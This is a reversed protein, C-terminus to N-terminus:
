AFASASSLRTGPTVAAPYPRTIGIPNPPERVLWLLLPVAVVPVLVALALYAARWGMVPLLATAIPVFLGQGAPIASSMIGTARGLHVLFWGALLATAPVTSAGAFGVGPVVGAFLYLQWPETATAVGFGGLGTLLASGVM